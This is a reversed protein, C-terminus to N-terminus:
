TNDVCQLGKLHKKATSDRQPGSPATPDRRNQCLAPLAPTAEPRADRSVSGGDVPNPSGLPWARVRYAVCTQGSLAILTETDNRPLHEVFSM